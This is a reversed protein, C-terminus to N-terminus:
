NEVVGLANRVIPRIDLLMADAMAAHGEATPHMAGTTESFVSASAQEDIQGNRNLVKKNIVLYADNFSRVWRQRLAYPFHQTEPDYPQWLGDKGSWNSQCAKGPRTWCPIALQEAPDDTRTRSRACFGHGRFPKDGYARAAFTWGHDGALEGMRDHLRALQEHTAALKRATVVLWNQWLDLSQNAAYSLEDEGEEGAPCVQGAEDELIDPYATLVIRAPDFVGDDARLPVATEIARALKAYAEPLNERMNEAFQGPSVTAGFFKALKSSTNNRLTAWTVLSSFGIDNGGVSLFLFDVNRRFQGDPCMWLGDKRVPATQCLERLLWRLQTDKRSGTVAKVQSAGGQGLGTSVYDVYEQPGLLGEAVAAGSCAYGLFTVASQPNEIGIQLAARLQHGYLSRHCAEDLWQANGGADNRARKPYLNNHRRGASFQVPVDPNGEGSAFSDGLGVILLDKVKAETTIGQEGDVAVSISAGSPYPLFATVPEDCPAVIPQSSGISWVCNYEALLANPKLQRVHMEIEHAQPSIYNEISGCASHTRTKGDWCVDHIQRAAWGMPEYRKRLIRTFTIYRDNLVHESGIVSTQSLLRTKADADSQLQDVHIGYQRWAREHMAFTEANRFLRFRNVVKWEIKANSVTLTQSRAEFPLFGTILAVLILLLRHM